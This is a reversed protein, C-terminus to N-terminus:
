VNLVGVSFRRRIHALMATETGQLMWGHRSYFTRARQNEKVCMLHAANHGEAAIRAEGDALLAHALGSGYASKDVYIQDIEAGSIACFGMPEGTEGSTRAQQGFALLRKEFDVVTRLLTLEKPVYKAHAEIWQEHWLHALPNIDDPAVERISFQIM